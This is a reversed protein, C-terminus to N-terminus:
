VNVIYRYNLLNKSIGTFRCRTVLSTKITKSASNSANRMRNQGKKATKGDLSDYKNGMIGDSELLYSERSFHMKKMFFQTLNCQM